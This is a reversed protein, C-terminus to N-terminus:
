EYIFVRTCNKYISKLGLKKPKVFSNKFFNESVPIINAIMKKDNIIKKIIQFTSLRKSSCVHIIKKAHYKKKILIDNLFFNSFDVTSIPTSYIDKSVFVKQGTYLKKLVKNVIQHNQTPGILTPLRIILLNKLKHLAQDALKKSNGYVTDPKPIFNENPMQKLGDQFVAETSFHILFINKKIIFQSLKIPFISNILYAKTPNLECDLFKTLGICNIILKPKFNNIIKKLREFNQVVDVDNRSLKLLKFRKELKKILQQALSSNSGILIIKKKM